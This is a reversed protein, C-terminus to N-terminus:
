IAKAIQIAIACAPIALLLVSVLFPLVGFEATTGLVFGLYMGFMGEMVLLAFLILMDVLNFRLVLVKKTKKTKTM